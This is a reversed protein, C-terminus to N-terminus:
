RGCGRRSWRAALSTRAEHPLSDAGTRQTGEPGTRCPAVFLQLRSSTQLRALFPGAGTRRRLGRNGKPGVRLRLGFWPRLDSYRCPCARRRNSLVSGAPDSRDPPRRRDAGRLGQLASLLAEANAPVAVIWLNLDKTYRREQHVMSTYGGVILHRLAGANLSRLPGRYDSNVKM